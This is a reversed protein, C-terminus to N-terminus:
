RTRITLVPTAPEYHAILAAENNLNAIATAVADKDWSCVVKATALGRAAVDPTADRDFILKPKGARLSITSDPADVKKEGAEQLAWAIAARLRESKAERRAKRDQIEKIIAKCAEAQAEEYRAERALAAVIENFSSLGELTDVFCQDEDNEFAFQERLWEKLKVHIRTATELPLTTTTM